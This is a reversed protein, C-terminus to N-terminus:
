LNIAPWEALRPDNATVDGHLLVGQAWAHRRGQRDILEDGIRVGHIWLRAPGAGDPLAARMCDRLPTWVDWADQLSQMVALTQVGSLPGVGLRSVCFEHFGPARPDYTM